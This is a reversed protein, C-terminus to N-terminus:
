ELRQIIGSQIWEEPHEVLPQIANARVPGGCACVPWFSDRAPPDILNRVNAKANIASITVLAHALACCCVPSIKPLTVSLEPAIRGPAVTVRDPGTNSWGWVAM